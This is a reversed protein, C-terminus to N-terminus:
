FFKRELTGFVDMKDKEVRQAARVAEEKRRQKTEEENCSQSVMGPTEQARMVTKAIRADLIIAFM